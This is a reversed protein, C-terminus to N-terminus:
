ALPAPLRVITAIRGEPEGSTRSRVHSYYATDSGTDIASVEIHSPLVGSETLVHTNCAFLDVAYQRGREEIFPRWRPDNKQALDPFVYSDKKIGPGLYAYLNEPNVNYTEKMFAIVKQGLLLVTPKWGAHLLAVARTHPDYLVVPVCDATLLMLTVRADKTILAEGLIADDPRFAGHGGESGGVVRISDGHNVKMVVVNGLAVGFRKLFQERNKTVAEHNGFRFDMNGDAATSTTCLVGHQELNNM